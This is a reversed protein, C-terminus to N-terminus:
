VITKHLSNEIKHLSYEIEHLSYETEHLSFWGQSFLTLEWKQGPSPTQCYWKVWLYRSFQHYWNLCKLIHIGLSRLVGVIHPGGLHERNWPLWTTGWLGLLVTVDLLVGGWQRRTCHWPGLGPSVSILKSVLIDGFCSVLGYIYITLILAWIRSGESMDVFSGTFHGTYFVGTMCFLYLIHLVTYIKFSVDWCWSVSSYQRPWFSGLRGLPWTKCDQM